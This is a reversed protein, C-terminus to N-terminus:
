KWWLYFRLIEDTHELTHQYTKTVAWKLTVPGWLANREESWASEPFQQMLALQDARLAKLATLTSQMEHGEGQQWNAEELAADGEASGTLGATSREEGTWQRMTPLGIYQDYRLLHYVIRAVSWRDPRPSLYHREPPIQEVAWLFGDTSAQIQQHLWQSLQM